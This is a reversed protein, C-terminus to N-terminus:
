PIRPAPALFRDDAARQVIRTVEVLSAGTSRAIERCDDYEPAASVARGDLLKLKVRVPGLPTEVTEVTREAEWRRVPTVRVGLTSTERLLADVVPGERGAPAIASIVTGPRDKKMQVPTLWVDRAGAATLVERAYGLLEPNMDDINTEIVIMEVGAEAQPAAEGVWLALVNPRGPVDRTGAGYGVSEVNMTPAEFSALTTLLAAGTPTLLEGLEGAGPPPTVAPTGSQRLLEAVGPAPVPLTGHEGRVTGSGVHLPAANVGEVELAALGACTGVIDALTDDSGLEHLALQDPPVGHVRAEAEGIRRLVRLSDAKVRSSLSSAEIRDTLARLPRATRGTDAPADSSSAQVTVKTAAIGARRVGEAALRPVDGGLCDIAEQLRQLPVGADVLAGLAMDGSAGSSGHFYAIRM